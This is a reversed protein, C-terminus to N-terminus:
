QCGDSFEEPPLDAPGGAQARALVEALASGFPPSYSIEEACGGGDLGGILGTVTSGSIWPAGSFGGVVGDCHLAPFGRHAAAAPARCASPGGGVGAPYGVVTVEAGAGPATGLRLGDGVVSDLRAGDPRAVRAVAFDALPDQGDIWRPDLYVAEVDWVDAADADGEFGPVFRADVGAALCHAATLILDASPSSLVAATCVHVEGDGLFVAGVRPDPPVPRAAPLAQVAAPSPAAHEAACGVATTLVLLLGACARRLTPAAVPRM